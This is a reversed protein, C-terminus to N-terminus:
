SRTTALSWYWSPRPFTGEGAVPSPGTGGRQQTRPGGRSSTHAQVAALQSGRGPRLPVMGYRTGAPKVGAGAWDEQHGQILCASRTLQGCPHIHVLRKTGRCGHGGRRTLVHQTRLGTAPGGRLTACPHSRSHGQGPLCIDGTPGVQPSPPGGAKSQQTEEGATVHVQQVKGLGLEVGSATGPARCGPM